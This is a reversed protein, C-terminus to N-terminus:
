KIKNKTIIREIHHVLSKYVAEQAGIRQGLSVAYDQLERVDDSVYYGKGNACINAMGNLRLHNIIKRLRVDTLKIDPYKENLTNCIYSSSAPNHKTKKSLGQAVIRALALEDDTLKETQKEFGKIM